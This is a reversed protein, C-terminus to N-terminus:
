RGPTYTLRKSRRLYVWIWGLCAFALSSALWALNQKPSEVPQGILQRGYNEGTAYGLIGIVTFVSGLIAFGWLNIRLVWWLIRNM